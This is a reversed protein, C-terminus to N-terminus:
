GNGDIAVGNPTFVGSKSEYKNSGLLNFKIDQENLWSFGAYSYDGKPAITVKRFPLTNFFTSVYQSDTIASQALTHRGSGDLAQANVNGSPLVYTNLTNLNERVASLWQDAGAIQEGGLEHPKPLAVERGASIQEALRITDSDILWTAETISKGISLLSNLGRNPLFKNAAVNNLIADNPALGANVSLPLVAAVNLNQINVKKPLFSIFSTIKHAEGRVYATIRIAYTGAGHFKLRSGPITFSSSKESSEINTSEFISSYSISNPKEIVNQIASRGLLPSQSIEVEANSIAAGSTEVFGFTINSRDNLWIKSQSVLSLDVAEEAIANPITLFLLLLVVFGSAFRKM